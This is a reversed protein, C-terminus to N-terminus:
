PEPPLPNSTERTRMNAIQAELEVLVTRLLTVQFKLEFTYKEPNQFCPIGFVKPDMAASETHFLRMGSATESTLRTDSVRAWAGRSLTEPKPNM